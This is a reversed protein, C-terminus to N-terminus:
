QGLTSLGVQWAAALVQVLIVVVVMLGYFALYLMFDQM